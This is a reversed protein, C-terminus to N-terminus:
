VEGYRYRTTEEIIRVEEAILDFLRYVRNSLIFASPHLIFPCGRRGTGVTPQKSAGTGV